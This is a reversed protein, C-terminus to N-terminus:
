RHYFPQNTRCPQVIKVAINIKNIAPNLIENYASYEDFGINPCKGNISPLSVRKPIVLLIRQDVDVVAAEFPETFAMCSLREGIAPIIAMIFIISPSTIKPPTPAPNYPITNKYDKRYKNGSKHNASCRFIQTFFNFSKLNLHCNNCNKGWSQLESKKLM